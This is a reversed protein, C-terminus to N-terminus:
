ASEHTRSAAKAQARCDLGFERAIELARRRRYRENRGTRSKWGESIAVTIPIIALVKFAILIVGVWSGSYLLPTKWGLATNVNLSPLSDTFNWAFFSAVDIPKIRRGPHVLTILKQDHLVFTLCSFFLLAIALTNIAYIFPAATGKKRDIVLRDFFRERRAKTSVNSLRVALMIGTAAVLVESGILPAANLFLAILVWILLGLLLKRTFDLARRPPRFTVSQRNVRALLMVMPRTLAPPANVLTDHAVASKFDVRRADGAQGAQGDHMAALFRDAILAHGITTLHLGDLSILGGQTRGEADSLFVRTDPPPELRALVPPLLKQLNDPSHCTAQALETLMSALDVLRWDRGQLREERVMNTISVNYETIADDIYRVNTGTLHRHYRPNFRGATWPRTYFSFYGYDDLERVGQIIPFVGPPPITGWLVQRAGVKKIQDRLRALHYAFHVPQWFPSLGVSDEIDSPNSRYLHLSALPSTAAEVGIWVLLSEIGPGATGERTGAAGLAAVAEMISLLRGDQKTRSLVVLAARTMAHSVTPLGRVRGEPSQLKELLKNATTHLLQPMDFDSVALHHPIVGDTYGKTFNSGEGREWYTKVQKLYTRAVFYAAPADLATLRDGFRKELVRLLEELNFGLGGPGGYDPYLFDDFVHLERAVISPYSWGNRFIAGSQFNQTFSDGVAVLRHIPTGKSLNPVEIGLTPDRSMDRDLPACLPVDRRSTV